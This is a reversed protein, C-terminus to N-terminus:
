ARQVRVVRGHGRKCIARLLELIQVKAGVDIGRTAEDALLVRPIRHAWRAFLLKQQNGGSLQAAQRDLLQRDLGVRDALENVRREAARKRLIGLRALSGIDSLMINERASLTPALGSVKRDEPIMSIRNQWAHRPTRPLRTLIGRLRMSGTSSPQAGALTRLLTSRGSGVLGAIGVIEGQSVHVAVDRLRGVSIGKVELEPVSDDSISRHAAAARDLGGLEKGLMATVLSRETWESARDAGVIHGDRFVVVHDSQALVENLYHSVLVICVGAARLEGLVRFLAIRENPALAATPEDLLLVESDLALARMIELMQQDALSLRGARVRPDIDVGVRQALERYEALMASRKVVGSRAKLRGVFVNELASLSSLVTLEQYITAVGISRAFAPDATSTYQIGRVSVRGSTARIRGALLGLCTSKGAGNQGVFAHVQGPDLSLSIDDLAKIAGFHRSVRDLVITPSSLQETM